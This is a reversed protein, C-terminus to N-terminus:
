AIVHSVQQFPSNWDPPQIISAMTPRNKLEAFAKKCDDFEFNVEKKLLNSLPLAISSFDKIFRCYFGVHGPFSRV